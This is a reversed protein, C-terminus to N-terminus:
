SNFKCNDFHYRSMVPKGGSKKCHPCVVSEKPMRNANLKIRSRHQNTLKRGTLKEKMSDRSEKSIPNQQHRKRAAEQMRQITENSNKRGTRSAILKERKVPDAWMALSRVSQEENSIKRITEYLKSTFKRGTIKGRMLWVANAMKMKAEGTVLKVLILHAVFHERLTLNVLNENCDQGGLSRPMIHHIEYLVTEDAKRAKAKEILSVYIKLYKNETFQYAFQM